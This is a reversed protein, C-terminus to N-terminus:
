KEKTNRRGTRGFDLISSPSASPKPLPGPSEQAPLTDAEPKSTSPFANLAKMSDNYCYDYFQNLRTSLQDSSLNGALYQISAAEASDRLEELIMSSSPEPKGTECSTRQTSPPSSRLPHDWTVQICCQGGGSLLGTLEQLRGYLRAALRLSLILDSWRSKKKSFNFVTYLLPSVGSEVISKIHM